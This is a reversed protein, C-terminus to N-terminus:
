PRRDFVLAMVTVLETRRQSSEPMWAMLLRRGDATPMVRSPPANSNMLRLPVLTTKGAGPPAVLVAAGTDRLAEIVDVIVSDVPLDTSFDEPLSM